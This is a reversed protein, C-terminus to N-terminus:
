VLWFLGDDSTGGGGKGEAEACARSTRKDWVPNLMAVARRDDDLNAMEREWTSLSACVYKHSTHQGWLLGNKRCIVYGVVDDTCGFDTSIRWGLSIFNQVWVATLCVLGFVTAILWRLAISIFALTGPVLVCCFSGSWSSSSFLFYCAVVYLFFLLFHSTISPLVVVLRCDWVVLICPTVWLVCWIWKGDHLNQSCVDYMGSRNFSCWRTCKEPGSSSPKVYM